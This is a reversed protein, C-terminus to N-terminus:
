AARREVPQPLYREILAYSLQWQARAIQVRNRELAAENAERTRLSQRESALFQIRELLTEVSEAVPRRRFRSPVIPRLRSM